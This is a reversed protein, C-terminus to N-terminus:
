FLWDYRRPFAILWSARELICSAHEIGDSQLVRTTVRHDFFIRWGPRCPLRRDDEVDRTLGNFLKDFEGAKEFAHFPNCTDFHVDGTWIYKFSPCDKPCTLLCNCIDCCRPTM